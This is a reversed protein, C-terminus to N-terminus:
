RTQHVTKFGLLELKKMLDDDANVVECEYAQFERRVPYNGRLEEFQRVDNRLSVDDRRLPYTMMILQALAQQTTLEKADINLVANEPAPLSQPFWDVLPLNFQRSLARITMASGLAKGDVSYGAIHPTAVYVRDLLELDLEPENEWVDLIAYSVVGTQLAQKIAETEVVEGRSTNIIIAGRKLRELTTKDFLHFTKDEGSKIYPVHYTIVDSQALVQEYSVFGSEGSRQRPPDNLLVKMGFAEAVQAVKKGVNGVGVIGITKGSLVMGKEMVLLSLVAAIYQKVSGSNCGPANTWAIGNAEVWATDIHDYGITATGIFRIPTGELLERNCQTRTRVVLAQADLLDHRTIKSGPLFTVDAFPELVGKLYKVKDDCVIKIRVASM